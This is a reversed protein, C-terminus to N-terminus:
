NVFSPLQLPTPFTPSKRCSTKFLIPHVTCPGYTPGPLKLTKPARQCPSESSIDSGGIKFCESIFFLIVYFLQWIKPPCFSIDVLNLSIDSGYPPNLFIHCLWGFKTPPPTQQAGAQIRWQTAGVGTGLPRFVTWPLCNLTSLFSKFMNWIRCILGIYIQMTLTANCQLLSSILRWSFYLM